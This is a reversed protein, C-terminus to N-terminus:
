PVVLLSIKGGFGDDISAVGEPVIWREGDVVLNFRHVGPALSVRLLWRGDPTRQMPVPQWGTWDGALDVRSAGPVGFRFEAQGRDRAYLARGASPGAWVTPRGRSLRIAGSLYRGRPLGQLLDSAYTGGGFVLAAQSTFWVTVTGGGWSTTPLRSVTPALRWGVYGMVDVPGASTAVRGEGQQYWAGELRFPTWVATANWAGRRGWAGVTPGFATAIGTSSSTWGTAATGGIWLGASGGAVHLRFEGRTGATRYGSSHVSADASGVVETRLLRLSRAPAFLLSLDGHGQSTWQSAEFAALVGSLTAYVTPKNWEILPAISVSTIRGATDYGVTNGALDVQWRQAAAQGASAAVSATLALAVIRRRGHM